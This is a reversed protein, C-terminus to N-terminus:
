KCYCVVKMNGNTGADRDTSNIFPEEVPPIIPKWPETPIPEPSTPESTTPETPTSETPEEVPPTIPKWPQTPTPESTTPEPTTPKSTTPKPPTPKTPKVPRLPEPTPEPIKDGPHITPVEVCGANHPWDCVKLKDNWHTGPGCPMKFPRGHLCVYYKTCDDPCSFLPETCQEPIIVYNVCHVSCLVISTAFLFGILTNM